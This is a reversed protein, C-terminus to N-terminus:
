KGSKSRPACDSADGERIIEEALEAVKRQVYEVAISHKIGEAGMDSFIKRSLFDLKTLHERIIWEYSQYIDEMEAYRYRNM